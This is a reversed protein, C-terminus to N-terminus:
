RSIVESCYQVQMFSFSGRIKTMLDELQQKRLIPDKPLSSQSNFVEVPTDVRLAQHFNCYSPTIHVPGDFRLSALILTSVATADRERKSKARRQPFM